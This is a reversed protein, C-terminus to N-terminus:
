KTAASAAAGIINGVATGGAAIAQVANSSITSSVSGVGFNHAGGLATQDTVVSSVQSAAPDTFVFTGGGKAKDTWTERSAVFIKPGKAWYGFNGNTGDPTLYDAFNFTESLPLTLQQTPVVVHWGPPVAVGYLTKSHTALSSKNFSACGTFLAVAFIAMLATLIQKQKM